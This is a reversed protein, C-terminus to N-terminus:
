REEAVKQSLKAWDTLSLEQARSNQDLGAAALLGRAQELEIRLGGALANSLKKRRASFGAKVVRLLQQQQDAPVIPKTHREIVVVASDVAPAPWFSDRPVERVIQTTGFLALVISLTTQDKPGATIREAVEKQITLLLKKPPVTTSTFLEFLYGTLYYPVNSVVVYNGDPFLKPLNIKRVDQLQLELNAADMGNKQTALRTVELLYPDIDIALVKKAREVLKQTLVGSGPGIELVVDRPTLEAATIIADRAQSDILFNQGYQKLRAPTLPKKLAGFIRKLEAVNTPDTFQLKAPKKSM